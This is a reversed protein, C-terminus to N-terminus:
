GVILRKITDLLSDSNFSSKKIYASAGVELGRKKDDESEYTTLMIIPIERDKERVKSCLSFGDMRPLDIDLLLLAFEERELRELAEVGDCATEVSYGEAELLMKELERTTISDEVVLIRKKEDETKVFSPIYANSSEQILDQPELVLVMEGTNLIAAGSVNKVGELEQPLPKIFIEDKGVIEDVVFGVKKGLSLIVVVDLEDKKVFVANESSLCSLYVLPILEGRSEIAMKQETTSIESPKVKTIEFISLLPIAFM